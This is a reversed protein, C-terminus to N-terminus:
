DVFPGGDRFYEGDYFAAFAERDMEGAMLDDWLREIEARANGIFVSMRERKMEQMRELETEYALVNAMTSGRNLEVFDDIDTDEIGLRKWLIELQDYM